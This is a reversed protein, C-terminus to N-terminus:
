FSVGVGGSIRRIRESSPTAGLMASSAVERNLSQCAFLIRWDMLGGKGLLPIDQLVILDFQSSEQPDQRETLAAAERLLRYDVRVETETRQVLAAAQFALYRIEGETMVQIPSEGMATAFRGSVRGHESSLSGHLNKFNKSLTIGVEQITATPDVVFLPSPDLPNDSTEWSVTESGFQFPNRELHGGLMWSEGLQQQVEARYGIPLRDEPAAVTSGPSYTEFGDDVRFRLVGQVVTRDWARKAGVRPIVTNFRRFSDFWHYDFGLTLSLPDSIQWSDEGSLSV